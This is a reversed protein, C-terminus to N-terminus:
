LDEIKKTLENMVKEIGDIQKKLIRENKELQAMLVNEFKKIKEKLVLENHDIQKLLKREGLSLYKDINVDEGSIEEYFEPDKLNEPKKNIYDFYDNTFSQGLEKLDQCYENISNIVNSSTEQKFKLVDFRDAGAAQFDEVPIHFLAINLAYNRLLEQSVKRDDQLKKSWINRQFYDELISFNFTLQSTIRDLEKINTKIINKQKQNLSYNNNDDTNEQTIPYPNMNEEDDESEENDNEGSLADSATFEYFNPPNTKELFINVGISNLAVIMKKVKSVEEFNYNGKKNFVHMGFKKLMLALYEIWEKQEEDNLGLLAFNTNELDSENLDAIKLLIKKSNEPITAGHKWRSVTAVSSSTEKAIKAQNYQPKIELIHTILNVDGGDNSSDKFKRGVCYPCGTGKTRNVISAIWVHNKECIWWIKKHSGHSFNEPLLNGNKDPHWEKSLGVYDSVLKKM